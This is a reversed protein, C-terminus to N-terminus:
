RGIEKLISLCLKLDEIGKKLTVKSEDKKQVVSVFHVMQNHFSQEYPDGIDNSKFLFHEKNIGDEVIVENNNHDWSLSGKEGVVNLTRCDPKQIYNLHVNSLVGSEHEMLINIGEEATIILKRKM